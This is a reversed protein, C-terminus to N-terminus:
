PHPTAVISAPFGCGLDGLGYGSGYQGYATNFSLTVPSTCDGTGKYVIWVTREYGDPSGGAAPFLSDADCGCPDGTVPLGARQFTLILFFEDTATDFPVWFEFWFNIVGTGCASAQITIANYGGCLSGSLFVKLDAGVHPWNPMGGVVTCTHCGSTGDTIAFNFTYYSPVAGGDCPACGGEGDRPCPAGCNTHCNPFDPYLFPCGHRVFLTDPWGGCCTSASVKTVTHDCSCERSHFVVRYVALSASDGTTNDRFGFALTWNVGDNDWSAQFEMDDGTISDFYHFGGFWQDPTGTWEMCTDTNKILACLQECGPAASGTLDPLEVMYSHMAVPCCNASCEDCYACDENDCCLCGFLVSGM